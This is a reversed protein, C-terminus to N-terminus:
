IKINAVVVPNLKFSIMWVAMGEGSIGTSLLAQCRYWSLPLLLYMSVPKYVRITRKPRGGWIHLVQPVQGSTVQGSRWVYLEQLLPLHVSSLSPWTKNLVKNTSQFCSHKAFCCCPIPKPTAKSVTTYKTRYM